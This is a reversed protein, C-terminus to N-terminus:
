EIDRQELKSKIVYSLRKIGTEISSESCYAYSLRLHNNGKDGIYFYSGPVFNVRKNLSLNVIENADMYEPLNIWIYFGGNPSIWNACKPLYTKLANEMMEKKRMYSNQLSKLHNDYDIDEILNAMIEQTLGSTGGDAKMKKFEEIISKNAIVWGLRFGPSIVKSFTSVYITRELSFSKIPLYLNNTFNLDSYCDDEIIIFNYKVALESLKKRREVNLTTGTPNQFTPISYFLKPMKKGSAVRNLLEKEILDVDVGESAVPFDILKAKYSSFIYLAGFYTPAELWVEDGEDIFTRAILDLGQSAGYTILVTDESNKIDWLNAYKNLLWNELKKVGEGGGYQLIKKNGNKLAKNAAVLVEEMPFLEEAPMGYNLPIIWKNLGGSSYESSPIGINSSIKKSYFDMYNMKDIM